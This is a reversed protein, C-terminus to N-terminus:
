INIKSIYVMWLKYKCLYIYIYILKKFWGGTKGCFKDKKKNKCKFLTNEGYKINLVSHNKSTGKNKKVLDVRSVRWEGAVRAVPPEATPAGGFAAERIEAAISLGICIKGARRVGLGTRRVLKVLPEHLRVVLRVLILLDAIQNEFGTLSAWLNNSAQM